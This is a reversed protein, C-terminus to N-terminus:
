YEPLFPFLACSQQQRHLNSIERLLPTSRQPLRKVSLATGHRLNAHRDQLLVGFVQVLSQNCPTTPFTICTFRNNVSSKYEHQNVSFYDPRHPLTMISQHGISPRLRHTRRGNASVFNHPTIRPLRRHATLQRSAVPYAPVRIFDASGESGVYGEKLLSVRCCEVHVSVLPLRNPPCGIL